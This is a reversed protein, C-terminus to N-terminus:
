REVKSTTSSGSISYFLGDLSIYDFITHRFKKKKIIRGNRGEDYTIIYNITTSTEVMFKTLERLKRSLNANRFDSCFIFLTGVYYRKQFHIFQTKRLLYTVDNDIDSKDDDNVTGIRM